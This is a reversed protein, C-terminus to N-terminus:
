VLKSMADGVWSSAEVSPAQVVVRSWTSWQEATRIPFINDKYGHWSQFMTTSIIQMCILLRPDPFHKCGAIIFRVIPQIYM